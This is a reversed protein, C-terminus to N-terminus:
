NSGSGYYLSAVDVAASLAGQASLIDALAQFSSVDAEGVMRYIGIPADASLEASLNTFSPLLRRAVSEDRRILEVAEDIASVFAEAEEPHETVFGSSLCHATIYLPDLLRREITGTEVLRLEPRATALTGTPELPVLADFEGQELLDLQLPPAVGQVFFDVDPQWGFTRQLTVEFLLKNTVGPFVAITKGRLDEVSGIDSDARTVLSYINNEATYASQLFIRFRGPSALEQALYVDAPGPSAADLGGTLVDEALTAGSQYKVLDVDLGNAEFLGEEEAVFLVAAPSIPLYGVRVTFLTQEQSEPAGSRLMSGVVLIAAIVVVVAAAIRSRKNM